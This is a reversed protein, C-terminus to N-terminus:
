PILAGGSLADATQTIKGELARKYYARMLLFAALIIIIVAAYEM